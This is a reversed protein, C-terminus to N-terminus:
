FREPMPPPNKDAATLGLRYHWYSWSHPRFWGIEAHRLVTALRETDFTAVLRQTDELTGFDMIRAILHMPYKLADEPSKWWVYTPAVSLLYERQEASLEFAQIENMWQKSGLQGRKFHRTGM